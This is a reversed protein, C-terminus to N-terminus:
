PWLAFERCVIKLKISLPIPLHEIIEVIEDFECGAATAALAGFAGTVGGAAACFVSETCSLAWAAAAAAAEFSTSWSPSLLYRRVARDEISPPPHKV